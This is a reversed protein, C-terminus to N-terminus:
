RLKAIRCTYVTYDDRPKTGKFARRENPPPSVVGGHLGFVVVLNPNSRVM